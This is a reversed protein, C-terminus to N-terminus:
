DVTVVKALNRPFDPNHGKIIAMHYAILQFVITFLISESAIGNPSGDLCELYINHHDKNDLLYNSILIVSAKRSKVEQITSNTKARSEKDCLIIVPTNNEILAFPGHKLAGSCYAEAHLYGIEKLKLAGELAIPYLCGRGLIFCSKVNPQSLKMAIAKCKDYYNEIITGCQYPLQNISHILHSRLRECMNRCQSFWICILILVVCQSTFAKTSAVAVERGANLYVGCDVSKAIMSDVVNVVGIIPVDTTRILEIARQIDRTEGSQSIVIVGSNTLPLDDLTFESADITTVCDFCKLKKFWYVSYIGAHLSSGNAVILLNKIKLLKESLGGLKVKEPTEIRGGHNIARLLSEQQEYIEKIMWHAYPDPTVPNVGKEFHPITCMKHKLQQSINASINLTLIENNNLSIYKNIVGVFGSVESTAIIQTKDFGVLLPSGNKCLYITDPTLPTIIALAWTGELKQIASKISNGVERCLSYYYSILNVIVESDTDSKFTYNKSMLFTKLNDFNEIIGNHVLSFMNNCDIHPHANADTRGGHTAWRTHAIGIKCGEFNQRCKQVATIASSEDTSAYKHNVIESSSNIMCIGASDYGRNQIVQLSNYLIDFVNKKDDTTVYAVIGCM